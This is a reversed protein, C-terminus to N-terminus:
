GVEDTDVGSWVKPLLDRQPTNHAKCIKLSLVDDDEVLLDFYNEIAPGFTNKLDRVIRNSVWEAGGLGVGCSSLSRQTPNFIQWIGEWRQLCIFAVGIRATECWRLKCVIKMPSGESTNARKIFEVWRM